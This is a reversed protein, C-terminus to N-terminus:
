YLPRELKRWEDFLEKCEAYMIGTQISVSPVKRSNEMQQYIKADRFGFQAAIEVGVGIFLSAIRAWYIAGLCMPCPYATTYLACDTLDFTGLKQCAIRIANIEAHCTPDQDRLVTNHAIALISNARVICAGFPGGDNNEIGERASRIASEM